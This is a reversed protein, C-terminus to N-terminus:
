RVIGIVINGNNESNMVTDATRKQLPLCSETGCKSFPPDSFISNRPPILYNSIEM